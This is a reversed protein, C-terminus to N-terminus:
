KIVVKETSVSGANNVVFFYIGPTLGTVNFVETTSASVMRSDILKGEATMLAISGTVNTLEVNVVADAPNPYISVSSSLEEVGTCDDLTVANSSGSTCGNVTQTATYTGAASVTISATTAQNSWTIGTAPTASITVTQGACAATANNAAAIVPANPISNVTVQVTYTGTCGTTTNTGTVTYPGTVSPAFATANPAGNTWVYTTAGAGSLTLTQGACVTANAPVATATVTPNANVTVQVTATNSCNTTTNTGTVTYSGTSSPTFAVANTAGNTWAYSDAGSGSLTVTQGACVAASVPSVTYSVTPLANITVQATASASSCGGSAAITNTVTYSGATAAAPTIAGTSANITLGTAPSITFTGINNVTPSVATGTACYAAAPYSFSANPSSVISVNQTSSNSCETATGATTYTVVYNNGITSTSPTIDGNAAISLGTTSSFTGGTVGTISPSAVSGTVCLTNSPYTFAASELPKISVSVTDTASCNADSGTVVYSTTNAPATFAVANTVSNNWAYNTATGTGTLTVQTGPCVSQDAGANVTPAAYITITDKAITPCHVLGDSTYTIVYQGPTSAAYNITGLSDSTFVLGATSSYTGTVTADNLTPSVATSNSCYSAAYNFGADELQSDYWCPQAWNLFNDYLTTAAVTNGTGATVYVDMEIPDSGAVGAVYSNALLNAGQQAIWHIEGTTKNYTFALDIVTNQALVLGPAAALNFSYFGTTGANNYRALGVLVGTSPTYRFGALGNGAVDFLAVRFANASTTSASITKLQYQVWIVDNGLDRATWDTTMDKFAYATGTASSSGTLSLANDTAGVSVIQYNSNALGFTFWDNQGPVGATVDTGLDGITLADFDEILLPQASASLAAVVM